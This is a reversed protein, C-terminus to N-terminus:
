FVALAAPIPGVNVASSVERPELRQAKAVAPYVSSQSAVLVHQTAVRNHQDIAEKSIIPGQTLHVLAQFSCTAEFNKPAAGKYALGATALSVLSIIACPLLYRRIM